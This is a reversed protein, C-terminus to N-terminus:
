KNYIMYNSYSKSVNVDIGDNLKTVEVKTNGTSISASQGIELADVDKLLQDIWQNIEKNSVDVGKSFDFFKDPYLGGYKNM